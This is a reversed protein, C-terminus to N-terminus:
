VMGGKRYRTDTVGKSGPISISWMGGSLPRAVRNFRVIQDRLKPSISKGKTNELEGDLELSMKDLHVKMGGRGNFPFTGDPNKEKSVMDEMWKLRGELPADLSPRRAELVLRRIENDVNRKGRNDSLMYAWDKKGFKSQVRQHAKNWEERGFGSPRGCKGVEPNCGSGPGGAYISITVALNM